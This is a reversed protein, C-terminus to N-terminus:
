KDVPATLPHVAGSTEAPQTQGNEFRGECPVKAVAYAARLAMLGMGCRWVTLVGVFLWMPVQIDAAGLFIKAGITILILALVSNVADFYALVAAFMFYIPRLLLMSLSQSCVIITTDTTTGLVASISDMAFTLDTFGIAVVVAAMRTVCVRNHEDRVFYHDETHDSWVLPAWRSLARVAWHDAAAEVDPEASASDSSFLLRFGSLLILAALVFQLWTFQNLLAAGGLMAVIRLAVALLMGHSIARFHYRMPLAAQQLFMMFVVLNDPSLVVNLGLCFFYTGADAWGQVQGYLGGFAACFGGFALLWGTAHKVSVCPLQRLVADELALVASLALVFPGCVSLKLGGHAM